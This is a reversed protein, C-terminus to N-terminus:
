VGKSLQIEATAGGEAYRVVCSTIKEYGSITATRNEEGLLTLEGIGAESLMGDLEEATFGGSVHLSLLWGTAVGQKYLKQEIVSSANLALESNKFKITM